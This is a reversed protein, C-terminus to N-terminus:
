IIHSITNLCFLASYQYISQNHKLQDTQEFPKYSSDIKMQIELTAVTSHCLQPEKM